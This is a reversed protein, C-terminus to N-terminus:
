GELIVIAAALGQHHSLSVHVARVGLAAAHQAAAGGLRLVPKDGSGQVVEVQRPSLGHSWGTGLAKLCAEKAAFRAALAESRGGSQRREEPGFVLTEFRAGHTARMGAVREIAVLDIGVGLTM